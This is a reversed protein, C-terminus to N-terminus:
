RQHQLAGNTHIMCYLSLMSVSFVKSYWREKGSFKGVYRLIAMSQALVYGDVELIPLHGNPLGAVFFF